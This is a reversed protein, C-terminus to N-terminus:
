QRYFCHVCTVENHSDTSETTHDPGRSIADAIALTKGSACEAICSYRMLRMLLRQCRLPVNDLDKSNILPVLTKHDTILRFSDLGYLYKEFQKCAWVGALCEKEIKAYRTEADSLRRSCCAMPRCKGNDKQLLIGGVRYSSADASVTTPKRADFVTLVHAYMLANKVRQFPAEQSPGWNWM